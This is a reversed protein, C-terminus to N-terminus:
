LFVERTTAQRAATRPTLCLCRPRFNRRDRPVITAPSVQALLRSQDAAAPQPRELASLNAAIQSRERDLAALREKLDAIQRGVDDTGTTM